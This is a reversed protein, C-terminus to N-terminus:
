WKKLKFRFDSKSQIYKDTRNLCEYVIRLANMKKSGIVREKFKQVKAQQKNKKLIKDGTMFRQLIKLATELLQQFKFTLKWKYEGM